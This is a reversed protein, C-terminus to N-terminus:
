DAKITNIQGKLMKVEILLDKLYKIERSLGEVKDKLAKNKDELGKLESSLTQNEERKKVRYRTAAQKNQDRKRAKRDIPSANKLRPKSKTRKPTPEPSPVPSSLQSSVDSMVSGPSQVSVPSTASYNHQDWTALTQDPSPPVTVTIIQAEPARQESVFEMCGMADLLALAQAELDGGPPISLVTPEPAVPSIPSAPMHVSTSEMTPNEDLSGLSSTPSPALDVEALEEKSTGTIVPAGIEVLLENFLDEARKAEPKPLPAQPITMLDAMPIDDEDGLWASLHVKESMWDPLPDDEAIGSEPSLADFSDLRQLESEKSSKSSVARDVDGDHLRGWLSVDDSFLSLIEQDETFSM